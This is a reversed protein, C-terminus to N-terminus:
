TYEIFGVNISNVRRRQLRYVGLGERSGNENSNGEITTMIGTRYDVSEIFGTHGAGTNKNIELIFIMGPKVLKWDAKAREDTIQKPASLNNARRWVDLCQASKIAPNPVNALEATKKFCWYVFAMCWPYNGKPDLGTALQYEDVMPGRNSGLPSEMVGVQSQAIRLAGLILSPRKITETNM